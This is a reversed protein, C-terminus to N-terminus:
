VGVDANHEGLDPAASGHEIRTGTFSLPLAVLRLGEAVPHDLRQLLGLAETQPDAVVGAVDQVPAAPVGAEELRSLWHESSELRLLPALSAILEDRNAVRLPNTAFRKDEPLAHMGLTQCLARFLKDNAAAIMLMGDATAFAEYPAIISIGSGFPGPVCGSALYGVIQYPLWNVATEFLSTEVHQPGAGMERRRLAALIGIVCWMGTGQDVVSVGARVPQGGREGTISMIGSAAQMLPDYGPQEKKPGKSGFAGVTCYIIGGNAASLNEFDLGLGGALGPRLNHIFVDATAALELLRDRDPASKLDLVISRKNANMALYTASIGNWFPPGWSRTDDGGDPREIKVVEAGLAGLILTCYPGAISTTVDLVRVGALPLPDLRTNTM